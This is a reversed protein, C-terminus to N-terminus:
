KASGKRAGPKTPVERKFMKLMRDTILFGGIVNISASIVAVFGLWTSVEHHNERGAMRLAEILHGLKNAGTADRRARIRMQGTEGLQIEPPAGLEVWM